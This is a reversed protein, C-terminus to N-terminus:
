NNQEFIDASHQLHELIRTLTFTIYTHVNKDEFPPFLPTLPNCRPYKIACVGLIVFLFLPPLCLGKEVELLPLLRDKRRFRRNSYYRGSKRKGEARDQEGLGRRGEEVAQFTPDSFYGLLCSCLDYSCLSRATGM